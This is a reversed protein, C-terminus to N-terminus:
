SFLVKFLLDKAPEKAANIDLVHKYPFVECGKRYFCKVIRSDVCDSLNM